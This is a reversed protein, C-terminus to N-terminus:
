KWWHIHLDTKDILEDLYGLSLLREYVIQGIVRYGDSNFHIGDYLLSPPVCGLSTQTEDESTPPIGAMALGETSLIERLNIYKEGFATNMANELDARESATGSTLGIVIFEGAHKDQLSLIANYQDILNENDSYGLNEGMWIIFIADKNESAAAATVQTGSPVTIEAGTENRTFFYHSIDNDKCLTIRGKVGLITCDNLGAGGYELSNDIRLTQGDSPLFTIEVPETQEPITFANVRFPIGGTRGAITVTNDGGIGYNIVPIDLHNQELLEELVGPYTTGDDEVGGTGFTLSDGYCVIQPLKETTYDALLWQEKVYLRHCILILVFCFILLIPCVFYFTKKFNM